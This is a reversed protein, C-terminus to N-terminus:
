GGAASPGGVTLRVRQPGSDPMREIVERAELDVKTFTCYNRLRGGPFAEHEEFRVQAASVLQKLLVGKPGADEVMQVIHARMLEYQRLDM